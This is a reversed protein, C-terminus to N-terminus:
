LPFVETSDKMLKVPLGAPDTITLPSLKSSMFPKPIRFTLTFRAYKFIKPNTIRVVAMSQGALTVTEIQYDEGIWLYKPQLQTETSADKLTVLLPDAPTPALYKINIEPLIYTLFLKGTQATTSRYVYKAYNDDNNLNTTLPQALFLDKVYYPDDPLVIRDDSKVTVNVADCNSRGERDSLECVQNIGLLPRINARIVMKHLPGNVGNYKSASSQMKPSAGSNALTNHHHPSCASLIPLALMTLLKLWKKHIKLTFRMTSVKQGFLGDCNSGYIPKAALLLQEFNRFKSRQGIRNQRKPLTQWM